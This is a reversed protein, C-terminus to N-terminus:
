PIPFTFSGGCVSTGSANKASYALTKAGPDYELLGYSNVDLNVCKAGVINFVIKIALPGISGVVKAVEKAYTETGIPGTVFEFGATTPFFISAFSQLTDLRVTNSYNAHSDTTLWFVNNIKHTKIHSIVERREAAFGEWRDYPLAWYEQIPDENLILKVKATSADLAALFWAKQDAGLLTRSPDNLVAKCAPSVPYRLQTLALGFIGRIWGPATPALDPQGTLPNTCAGPNAPDNQAEVSRYAREDLLFIDVDKGWHFQRYFRPQGVAYPDGDVPSYEKFAQLGNALQTPDVDAASWDNVVEHDDWQTISGSAKTIDVIGPFISTDRAKKYKARYDDLASVPVPDDSYITDGLFVFLDPNEAAATSLVGFNGYVPTGTEDTLTNADGDLVLRLPASASTAPPTHFTGVDSTEAGPTTRFRYSYSTGAGLGTTPVHLTYDAGPDPTVTATFDVSTFTPDDDVEAVVDDGTVARTWLIMQGSPLHGASIGQAFVPDAAGAPAAVVAALVLGALATVALRSGARRFM